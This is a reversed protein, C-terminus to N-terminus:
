VGALYLWMNVQSGLEESVILRIEWCNVRFLIRTIATALVSTSM